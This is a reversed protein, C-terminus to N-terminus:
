GTIRTFARNVHVIRQKDDTVLVGELTSDFVAAAQRLSEENARHQTVDVVTGIFRLPQGAQDVILQGRSQMWIYHQDAHRIRFSGDYLHGPKPNAMLSAFRAMTAQYDDPHLRAKWEALSASLGNDQMGLMETYRKSLFVRQNAFDLDWLGEQAADLALSFREESAKLAKRIQDHRTQAQRLIWYLLAATVLVFGIGKVVQLGAMTERDVGIWLLSAEGFLIWLLALILYTLTLKAPSRERM